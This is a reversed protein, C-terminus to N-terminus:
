ATDQDLETLWTVGEGPDAVARQVQRALALLSNRLSVLAEDIADEDVSKTALAQAVDATALGIAETADSLRDAAAVKRQRLREDRGALVLANDASERLSQMFEISEDQRAIDAKTGPRTTSRARL